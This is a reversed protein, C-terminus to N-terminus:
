PVAPYLLKVPQSADNEPCSQNMWIMLEKQKKVLQKTFYILIQITEYVKFPKQQWFCQRSVASTKEKQLTKSLNDTLGHHRQGLYFGLFFNFTKALEKRKIVRSM